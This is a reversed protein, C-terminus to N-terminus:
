LEDRERLVKLDNCITKQSYLTRAAIETQTLNEKVHLHKVLERRQEIPLKKVQETTTRQLGLLTEKSNIFRDHGNSSDIVISIKSGKKSIIFDPTNNSEAAYALERFLGAVSTNVTLETKNM